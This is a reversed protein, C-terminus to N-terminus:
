DLLTKGPKAAGLAFISGAPQSAELVAAPTAPRVSATSFPLASKTATRTMRSTRSAIGVRFTGIALGTKPAAIANGALDSIQRYQLTVTYLGNDASDWAGGPGTISYAATVSRANALTAAPKVWKAPVKYNLGKPGTVVIDGDGITSARVAVDDTYTVSFKYAKQSAATIASAHLAATPPVNDFTVTNDTGTSATNPNGALDTVVGAPVTVTITGSQQMGTVAVNYTAGSGTVTATTAAATGGLVVTGAGFGVVPKNFVVAFNIPTANASVAQGSARSVAVNPAQTDFTVTGTSAVNFNGAADAVMGPPITVVVTGPGQMGTVAVTYAAGSGTVVATTAGATGGLAVNSSVFGTVPKNFTVTFNIPSTNTANAQGAVMASLTQNDFTVTNDTSTSALNANGAVDTAAGARVGATVTGPGTMGSVAVNYVTNSGTVVATTAGATGGLAVGAASFGSVPKSFIVTFNITTQNTPNPREPLRNITVTPAVNDFLITNDTSTSALNGNAAADTAAAAPITAIVTGSQTMGSVAVNYTKGAGTVVVTTAGATGGLTVGAAGFGAVPKTFVATFNVTAASAPSPQAAARNITVAPAQNDWTVATAPGAANGYRGADLVVNAPISLTVAGNQQMGSVAVNYTTGSGTVAATTAGASGGVVVSAATFGTVPASFVVKFNVPSLHTPNPQAIAPTIRPVPLPRNNLLVTAKNDLNDAVAFDPRADGNFDAAIVARPGGGVAYETQPLLAGTGDNLFVDVTNSDLCSVVLDPMGDGNFDLAAVSVPNPGTAYNTPAGLGGAGNNLLVSLTNGASDVIAVDPKGDGNFDATAMSTPYAGGTVYAVAAAFVGNGTNLLISVRGSGGAGRNAVALDMKGDGNFDAAVLCTPALGAAYTVAPAFTGDGNGLLVSVTNANTNAVALDIKGDGNFDGAVISTPDSGVAYDVKPLLAGDGRNLFVSVSNGGADAVALDPKGDGNFDAAAVAVPGLGSVYDAHPAFTGNGRNMLVSITNDAFNAVVLDPKGDGNFDASAMGQPAAGVVYDSRPTFTRMFVSNDTSTSAVNGNGAADFAGNATISAIVTGPGTMGTVVVTYTTGSGTVVATTPGATGSLAVSGPGFGTVPKSFVATFTITSGDTPDVQAAAQDITVTPRVNDFTVTNDTSTSPNNTFGDASTAVGAPITAIVTGPQTMGSVAVNYATGSGTVVATTAGATGGLLVGAGDFGTVPQSFIVTFNITAGNTPDAQSSAQNITVSPALYEFTVKNDVSTSPLNGNDNIDQAVNPPITVTVVGSQTMGSVAVNYTTGSGTVVAISAGATGGLVVGSGTFGTVPASFVVTFNIPAAITPDAQTDAQNITVAPAPRNNLYVTVDSVLTPPAPNPLVMDTRGDLDLDAVAISQATGTVNVNAAPLFRGSGNNVLVTVSRGFKGNDHAVVLDLTGNGDMDGTALAGAGPGVPYSVPATFAGAGTSFLVAVSNGGGTVALDTQGDGNFDGAVISSPNQGAPYNVAPAFTGNGNNLLVSVDNGGSNAVALDMTGNGRFNGAVLSSAGPGVPYIGALFFNGGGANLAVAVEDVGGYIIALDPKGDGNFDAAVIAQPQTLGTYTLSTTFNGGGNNLLLTLTNSGANVVALDTFGDGNFDAAAAAVPLAGVAYDTNPGFTGNGNNMLVSISNDATNVSVIDPKLDGNFDATLVAAPQNGTVYDVGPAFSVTLLQRREFAEIMLATARGLLRGRRAAVEAPLGWRHGHATLRRGSRAALRPPQFM